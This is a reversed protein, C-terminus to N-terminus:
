NLNPNPDKRPIKNKANLWDFLRVCGYGALGFLIIGLVMLVMSRWITVLAVWIIGVIFWLAVPVYLHWLPQKGRANM